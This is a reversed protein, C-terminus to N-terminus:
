DQQRQQYLRFGGVRTEQVFFISDLSGFEMAGVVDQVRRKSPQQRGPVSM